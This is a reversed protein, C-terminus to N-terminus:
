GMKIRSLCVKIKHVVFCLRNQKKKNSDEEVDDRAGVLLENENHNTLAYYNDLKSTDFYVNGGKQYAYGKELLKSIMKIYEPICNTAPEIVDPKKNNIKKFDNFFAQEYFKAIEMVTKNERIAGKVMKDEGTDADSSLHGVDTINMVRKVNYGLFRLTKELVDEMIYSRLNGIHAYHYVTPGCTYMKIEKSDYPIFDEIKRTRTNYIKM